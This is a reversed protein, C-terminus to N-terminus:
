RECRCIGDLHVKNTYHCYEFAQEQCSPCGCAVTGAFMGPGIPLQRVLGDSDVNFHAVVSWGEDLRAKVKVCYEHILLTEADGADNMLKVKRAM